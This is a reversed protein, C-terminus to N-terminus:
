DPRPNIRPTKHSRENLNSWKENLLGLVAGAADGFTSELWHKRAERKTKFGCTTSNPHDTTTYGYRGGYGRGVEVVRCGGNDAFQKLNM